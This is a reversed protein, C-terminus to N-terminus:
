PGHPQDHPSRLPCMCKPATVNILHWVLPASLLGMIFTMVLLPEHDAHGPQVKGTLLFLQGVPVRAAEWQNTQGEVGHLKM